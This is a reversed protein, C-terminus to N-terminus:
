QHWKLLNTAPSVTFLKQEKQPLQNDTEDCFYYRKETSQNTFHAGNRGIQRGDSNQKTNRKEDSKEQILIRQQQVKLDKELFEILKVWQEHDDYTEEYLKSLWRTVRNDGLLQYIRELGDGSYLKSEIHHESALRQLDKVTNIIQSLAAMVRETDKLKSLQSIKNIESFIKKLLLKPDGYASKLRQWTEDINDVSQVLSLAAGVLHNIKLVDSLM